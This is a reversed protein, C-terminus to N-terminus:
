SAIARRQPNEPPAQASGQLPVLRVEGAESIEITMTTACEECLWFYEVPNAKSRISTVVKTGVLLGQRELDAFDVGFLRGQGWYRFTASCCSNLCKTVM